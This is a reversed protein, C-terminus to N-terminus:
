IFPLFRQPNAWLSDFQSRSCLSISHTVIDIFHCEILPALYVPFILYLRPIKVIPFVPYSPPRNDRIIISYFIQYSLYTYEGDDNNYSRRSPFRIECSHKTSRLYIFYLIALPSPLIQHVCKRKM